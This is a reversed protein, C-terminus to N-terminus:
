KSEPLGVDRFVAEDFPGLTTIIDVAVAPITTSSNKTVQATCCCRPEFDQSGCYV